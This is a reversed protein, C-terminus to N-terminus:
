ELNLKFANLLNILVENACAVRTLCVDDLIFYGVLSRDSLHPAQRYGDPIYSDAQYLRISWQSTSTGSIHRVCGGIAGTELRQLRLIAM